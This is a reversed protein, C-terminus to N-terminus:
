TQNDGDADDPAARSQAEAVFGSFIADAIMTDYDASWNGSAERDVFGIFEQMAACDLFREPLDDAALRAMARDLRAFRDVLGPDRTDRAWQNYRRRGQRERMDSQKRDHLDAALALHAKTERGQTLIKM